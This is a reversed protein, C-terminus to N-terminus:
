EIEQTIAIIKRALVDSEHNLVRLLDDSGKAKETEKLFSEVYTRYYIYQELLQNLADKAKFDNIKDAELILESIKDATQNALLVCASLKESFAYYESVCTNRDKKSDLSKQYEDTIKVTSKCVASLEKEYGRFIGGKNKM